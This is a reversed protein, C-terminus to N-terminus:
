TFTSDVRYGDGHEPHYRHRYPNLPDEAGLTVSGTLVGSTGSSEITGSLTVPRPFLTATFRHVLDRGDRTTPLAAHDLLRPPGGDDPISLILAVPAEPAAALGGGYAEPRSVRSVIAEGIWLGHLGPLVLR